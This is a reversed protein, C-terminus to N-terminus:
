AHVGADHRVQPVRLPDVLVEQFLVTTITSALSFMARHLANDRKWLTVSM